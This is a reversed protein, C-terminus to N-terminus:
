NKKNSRFILATKILDFYKSKEDEFLQEGGNMYARTLEDKAKAKNGLELQVQGLRLHILPNGIAGPCHMVNQLFHLANEYDAMFFYTEGIATLVWTSASWDTVPDPILDLAEFYKELALEWQEQEIYEDGEACSKTIQSYLQDFLTKNM